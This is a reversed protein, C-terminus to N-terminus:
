CGADSIPSDANIWTVTPFDNANGDINAVEEKIRRWQAETPTSDINETFGNFWAKFEQATM